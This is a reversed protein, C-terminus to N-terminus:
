IATRVTAPGGHCGGQGDASRFAQRHVGAPRRRVPHLRGTSAPAPGRPRLTRPHVGRPQSLGRAPPPTVWASHIVHVGAPCGIAASSSVAQRDAPSRVVGAPVPAADRRRGDVPVPLRNLLDEARRTAARRAGRGARRGRARARRPPPEARLAPVVDDILHHRSRRVAPADAPRAARPPSGAATRTARRSAADLPRRRRHGRGGAASSRPTSSRTSAAATTQMRAWPTGPGRLLMMWSETDYFALAREFLVAAQHGIRGSARTSGSWRACRSAVDGPRAGMRLRRADEGPRWGDLAREAEDVMVEVARRPAPSPLGADHDAARPRSLGLRHHDAWRRDAPTLHEGFMGKRWSFNEAGSVTVFHNAEPGIM